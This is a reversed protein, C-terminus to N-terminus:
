GSHKPKHTHATHLKYCPRFYCHLKREPKQSVDLYNLWQNRKTRHELETLALLPFTVPSSYEFGTTTSSVNDRPLCWNAGTGSSAQGRARVMTQTNMHTCPLNAWM